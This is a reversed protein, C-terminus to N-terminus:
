AQKYIVLMQEAIAKWQYKQEVLTRGNQGMDNREEESLAIAEHLAKFLPDVGYDIWWGCRGVPSHLNHTTLQSNHDENGSVMLSEGSVVGSNGMLESWPAGKTTIVPVSCALSEAVVIGFNENKTPLVFIDAAKMLKVKEDGFVPGVFNINESLGANVIQQKLSEVYKDDGSGAILLFWGNIDRTARSNHTTFQSNHDPVSSLTTSHQVDRKDGSVTFSEDQVKGWAQILMELGKIPHIRSLFLAICKGKCVPWKLDIFESDAVVSDFSELDVGNPIVAIRPIGLENTRSNTLENTLISGGKKRQMKADKRSSGMEVLPPAAELGKVFESSELYARIDAAEAECTAHILVAKKLFRRDFLFGALRKKLPSIKLREPALCGEPSMMLKKRYKLALFCSWWVPFTWNSHVHVIDSKKIIGPLKWLMELSFFLPKCVIAKCVLLNVGRERANLAADSVEEGTTVLTVNVQQAMGACFQPVCESIGGIRPLGAVVHVVSISM